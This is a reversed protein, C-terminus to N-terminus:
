RGTGEQSLRQRVLQIWNRVIVVDTRAAQQDLKAMLFRGDPAVDYMTLFQNSLYGSADFLRVRSAVALPAGRNVRAAMMWGDPGRYFVQAGDRSWVAERGGDASVQVRSGGAPFSEAYVEDRGSRDSVYLLWKGDPSFRPGREQSDDAAFWRLSDGDVARVAIDRGINAGGQRTRLALFRGDPSWVLEDVPDPWPGALSDAPASADVARLSVLPGDRRRAGGGAPLPQIFSVARGDPRWSPRASRGNSTLPTFSGLGLDAIWVDGSTTLAGITVAARRGDPSLALGGYVRSDSNPIAQEQGGAVWVMRSQAASAGTAYVLTGDDGVAYVANGDGARSVNSVMPVPAESFGTRDPNLRGVQLTGDPARFALLDNALFKPSVGAGVVHPRGRGVTHLVISDAQGRRARAAWKGDPSIDLASLIQTLAARPAIAPIPDGPNLVALGGSDTAVLIRGDRLRRLGNTPPASIPLGGGVDIEWRANGTGSADRKFFQVTKGDPVTAPRQAGRTGSIPVADLQDLPRRWLATMRPVEPDPGVFVLYSGDPAIAIPPGVENLPLDSPTRIELPLVAATVREPAPANPRLALFGALVLAAGAVAWPLIRSGRAASPSQVAMTAATLSPNALADAFEKASGWRDAPLKAMATLVAAEIHPPVMERTTRPPVPRETLVKALIAQATSGTFPPDGTLMEYTMAGLAYVDSRPTIEKEGLAQEPSMYHPTGLSMGTQTMRGGGAVTVALAIGFDAVMAQGDHLLVNEPKIDRHVVGHRHAYDLASAVETAIRVAEPIPLQKERTLRIRLSEGSVFPMVYFLLGGAEGSDILGLIHPHQLRATTKIEQLFREAGIVAGLEPHLVKLAVDRDHKVDHALYVTAMGGQGVEREIRYQAALAIRLRDAPDTL